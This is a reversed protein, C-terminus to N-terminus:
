AVSAKIKQFLAPDSYMVVLLPKIGWGARDNYIHVENPGMYITHDNIVFCDMVPGELYWLNYHECFWKWTALMPATVKSPKPPYKNM